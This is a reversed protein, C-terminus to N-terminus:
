ERRERTASWRVPKPWEGRRPEGASVERRHSPGAGPAWGAVHRQASRKGWVEPDRVRPVAPPGVAGKEPDKVAM